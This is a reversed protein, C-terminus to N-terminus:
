NKTLQIPTGERLLGAGEAVIIDGASLGSEVIYEAGNNIKFTTIETSAAKGDIVKYVYTRDQIEFTATKPIIICDKKEYPIVVSATGGNRLIHKPNAFEARVSIAGTKPDVTGSIADIKGDTDYANGNSLILKVAPLYQMVNSLSENGNSLALIQNETMSFYAYMENESSVTVLPEAISPSVLVGVKYPIMSAVGDVPSKIVTFSLSNRANVESAKAQALTAQAELLTNQVTQLEFESIVNEEYLERKSDATLQASAVKAQASMVNAIATELAANYSVQDIIFLTQGKKVAAGENICIQTILGSIQPRIEVNQQGQISATFQSSVTTNAPSVSMTKYTGSDKTTQPKDKCGGTFTCCAILMLVFTFGAEKNKLIM